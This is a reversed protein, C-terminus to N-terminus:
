QPMEYKTDYKEQYRKLQFELIHQYNPLDIDGEKLGALTKITREIRREDELREILRKNM